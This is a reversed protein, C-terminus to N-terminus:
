KLLVMKRSLVKQGTLVRYIYFGSAVSIGKDNKGNWTISHYGATLPKNVLEMVQRGLIDYVLLRVDAARPLGFTITTSPNFPNPWNAKLELSRPILATLREDEIDSILQEGFVFSISRQGVSDIAFVHFDYTSDQLLNIFDPMFSIEVDSGPEFDAITFTDSAADERYFFYKISTISSATKEILPTILLPRAMHLTWRNLEDRARIYLAHFGPNLTSKNITLIGESSVGATLPMSSGNGFGPDKDFYYEAYNINARTTDPLETAPIFFPKLVHQSWRGNNDRARIYVIHFGPTLGNKDISFSFVSDGETASVPIGLGLGPDFDFYYEAYYNDQAHLLITLFPAIMLIKLFRKYM